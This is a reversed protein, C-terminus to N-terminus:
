KQESGQRIRNVSSGTGLAIPFDMNIASWAGEYFNWGGMFQVPTVGPHVPPPPEARASEVSTQPAAPKGEM